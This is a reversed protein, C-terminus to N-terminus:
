ISFIKLFILFFVKTKGFFLKLFHFFLKLFIKQSSGVKKRKKEKRRWFFFNRSKKKKEFFIKTGSFIFFNEDKRGFFINKEWFSINEKKIDLIKIVLLKEKKGRKSM